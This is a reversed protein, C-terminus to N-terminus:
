GFLHRQEFFTPFVSSNLQPFLKRLAAKVLKKSIGLNEKWFLLCTWLASCARQSITKTKRRNYKLRAEFARLSKRKLRKERFPPIIDRHLNREKKSSKQEFVNEVRAALLREDILFRKEVVEPFSKQPRSRFTCLAFGKVAREAESKRKLFMITWGFPRINILVFLGRAATPPFHTARFVVM